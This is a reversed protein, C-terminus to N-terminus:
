ISIIRWAALLILTQVLTAVAFGAAPSALGPDKSHDRTRSSMGVNKLINSHTPGPAPAREQVAAIILNADFRRIGARQADRLLRLRTSYRLSDGDLEQAIRTAFRRVTSVADSGHVPADETERVAPAHTVRRADFARALAGLSNLRRQPDARHLWRM